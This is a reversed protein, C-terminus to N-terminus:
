LRDRNSPRSPPGRPTLPVVSVSAGHLGSCTRVGRSVSLPQVHPCTRPPQLRGFGLVHHGSAIAPAM